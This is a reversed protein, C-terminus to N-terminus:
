GLTAFRLKRTVGYDRPQPVFATMEKRVEDYLDDVVPRTKKAHRQNTEVPDVSIAAIRIGRSDFETLRQQFGRLESNCLM